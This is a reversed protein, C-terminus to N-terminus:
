DASAVHMTQQWRNLLRGLQDIEADTLGAVLSEDTALVHAASEEVLRHGRETLEVEVRRNTLSRRAVLGEREAKAVRQSIAGATVFCVDTLERTTLTYPTGARRLSSLLDLTAADIRHKSLAEERARRLSRGIVKVSTIVAISRTPVGPLERQWADSIEDSTARLPTKEM